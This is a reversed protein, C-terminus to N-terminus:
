LTILAEGVAVADGEKINVVSVTGSIKSRVETEMKMAEMILVVDGQAVHSGVNVNVKLINGAMPSEIEEGASSVTAPANSSQQVSINSGGPGVAVNYSRGDVNV